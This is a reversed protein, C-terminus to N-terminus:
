DYSTQFGQRVCAAFWSSYCPARCSCQPPTVVIIMTVRSGDEMQTGVSVELIQTGQTALPAEMLTLNSSPCQLLNGLFLGPIGSVQNVQLQTM